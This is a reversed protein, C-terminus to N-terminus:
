WGEVGTTSGEVEGNLYMVLEKGNYVLAVHEWEARRVQSVSLLYHFEKAM